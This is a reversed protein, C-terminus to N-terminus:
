PCFLVISCANLNFKIDDQFTKTQLDLGKTLKFIDCSVDNKGLTIQIGNHCSVKRNVVSNANLTKQQIHLWYATLSNELYDFVTKLILTNRTIKSMQIIFVHFSLVHAVGHAFMRGANHLCCFVGVLQANACDGRCMQQENSRITITAIQM